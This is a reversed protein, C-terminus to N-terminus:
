SCFAKRWSVVVQPIPSLGLVLDLYVTVLGRMDCTEIIPLQFSCVIWLNMGSNLYPLIAHLSHSQLNNSVIPISLSIIVMRM